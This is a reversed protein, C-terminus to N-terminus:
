SLRKAKKVRYMMTDAENLLVDFSGFETRTSYGVSVTLQLPFDHRRNCEDLLSNIKEILANVQEDSANEYLICFEDGGIRALLSHIDACAEKLASAVKILAQDGALHGFTDNIRKFKDIDIVLISVSDITRSKQQIREYYLMISSRNNISTLYDTTIHQKQINVFTWLLGIAFFDLLLYSSSLASQFFLGIVPLIIFSAIVFCSSRESDIKTKLAKQVAYISAALPYIFTFAIDLYALWGLSYRNADTLYFRSHTLPNLLLSLLNCAFPLLVLIRNLKGRIEIGMLHLSYYLWLLSILAQLFIAATNLLFLVERACAFTAGDYIWCLMEAIMDAITAFMVNRLRIWDRSRDKHNSILLVLLMAVGIICIKAYEM